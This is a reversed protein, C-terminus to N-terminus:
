QKKERRWIIQQIKRLLIFQSILYKGPTQLANQESVTNIKQQNIANEISNISGKNTKRYKKMVKDDNQDGTLRQSHTRYFNM